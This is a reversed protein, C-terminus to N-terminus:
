ALTSFKPQNLIYNKIDKESIAFSWEQKSLVSSAYSVKGYFKFRNSTIVCQMCDIFNM